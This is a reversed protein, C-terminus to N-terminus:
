MFALETVRRTEEDEINSMHHLISAENHITPCVAQRKEADAIGETGESSPTAGLLGAVGGWVTLLGEGTGATGKRGLRGRLRGHTSTSTPSAPPTLFSSSLPSAPPSLFSSSLPSAPPSSSSGPSSSKRVRRDRNLLLSIGGIGKGPGPRGSASTYSSSTPACSSLSRLDHSDSESRDCPFEVKGEEASSGFGFPGTVEEDDAKLSSGSDSDLAPTPSMSDVTLTSASTPLELRPTVPTASPATDANLGAPLISGSTIHNVSELGSGM